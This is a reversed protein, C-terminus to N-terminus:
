LSAVANEGRIQLIDARSEFASWTRDATVVPLQKETGLALCCRDGLSLHRIAPLTLATAIASNGDFPCIEIGLSDFISVADEM